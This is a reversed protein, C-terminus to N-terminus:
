TEEVVVEGGHRAHCKGDTYLGDEISALYDHDDCAGV